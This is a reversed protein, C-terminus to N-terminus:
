SKKKLLMDELIDKLDDYKINGNVDISSDSHIHFEIKKPENLLENKLHQYKPTLFHINQNSSGILAADSKLDKLYPGDILIDTISLLDDWDPVKSKVIHNLYYGTYTLISLDSESKLIKGLNFLEKAQIFPEGGSFTVGEINPTQLIKNAIETISIKKGSKIDWMWPVACDPCHIPCGQVWLCARSGPGEVKTSLMFNNLTLYM